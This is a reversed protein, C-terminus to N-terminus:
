QKNERYRNEKESSKEKCKEVNGPNQTKYILFNGHALVLIEITFTRYNNLIVDTSITEPFNLYPM